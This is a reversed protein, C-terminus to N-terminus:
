RCSPVDVPPAFRLTMFPCAPCHGLELISEGGDDGEVAFKEGGRIAAMIQGVGWVTRGGDQDLTELSSMHQHGSATGSEDFAACMVRYPPWEDAAAAGSDIM